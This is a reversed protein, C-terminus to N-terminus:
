EAANKLLYTGCYLKIKTVMMLIIVHRLNNKSIEASSNQLPFTRLNRSLRGYDRVCSMKRVKLSFFFM